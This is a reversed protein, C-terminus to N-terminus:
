ITYNKEVFYKKERSSFIWDLFDSIDPTRICYKTSRPGVDGFGDFYLRLLHQDSFFDVSFMKEISKIHSLFAIGSTEWVKM